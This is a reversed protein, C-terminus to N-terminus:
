AQGRLHAVVASFDREALGAEAAEALERRATDIMGGPGAGAEVALRLDKEALALSFTVPLGEQENQERMRVAMGGVATRSLEDWATAPDVGMGDALAMVEGVLVPVSATISNIVLKLAAGAGADGVRKPNGLVELVERVRDFEEETGGVFIALTGAEAADLTGKVPADVLTTGEPMRARLDRVAGPGSTSMEVVVAGPALSGAAAGTGFIVENVSRGDALMTIVVEAASVADAPREALKAGAHVLPEAKAATRNWVTLEHGAALLRGAMLAGMRGLGLFAIRAM